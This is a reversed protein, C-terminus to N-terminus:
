ENVRGYNVCVALNDSLEFYSFEFVCLPHHLGCSPEAQLPAQLWAQAGCKSVQIGHLPLLYSCSTMGKM